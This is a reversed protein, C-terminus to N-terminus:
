DCAVRGIQQGSMLPYPGVQIYNADAAVVRDREIIEIPPTYMDASFSEADRRM